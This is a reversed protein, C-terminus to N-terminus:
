IELGWAHKFTEAAAAALRLDVFSDELNGCITPDITCAQM